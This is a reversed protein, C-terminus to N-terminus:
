LSINRRTLYVVLAKYNLDTANVKVLELDVNNHKIEETTIEIDMETCADTISGMDASGEHVLLNHWRKSQERGTLDLLIDM